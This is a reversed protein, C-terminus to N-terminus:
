KCTYVSVTPHTCISNRRAEGEGEHVVEEEPPGRRHVAEEDVAELDPERARDDKGARPIEPKRQQLIPQAM